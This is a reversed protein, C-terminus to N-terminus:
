PHRCPMAPRVGVDYNRTKPVNGGRLASRADSASLQWSGGRLVRGRSTPSRLGDGARPEVEYSGHCDRCWECVNGLVDHLGFQNAAFSGVPAHVTYGDNWAEHKSSPSGNEKCFQDAVNAAQALGETGIGTWRPTTTGGRAGYEWQAETPLVLGIRGLWLDCDEWNVQEVPNRLDAIKGGPTAGPSYTSPNKGVLRVWQGQTMEYKSLFFPDLRVETIPSENTRVEPDVNPDTV